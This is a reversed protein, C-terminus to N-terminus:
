SIVLEKRPKERTREAYDGVLHRKEKSASKLFNLQISLGFCAIALLFMVTEDKTREECKGMFISRKRKRKKRKKRVVVM